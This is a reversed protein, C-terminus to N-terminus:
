KFFLQPFATQPQKKLIRIVFTSKLFAIGYGFFQIYLAVLTYLSILLSKNVILSELFVFVTYILLISIFITNGFLLAIFSGLTYFVFLTPLWFTVKAAGPHWLSIIPRVMGFKKVQTYFKSWSIRRKHYVFVKSFFATKFGAKMIRHSLDPDEGPHIKGFGGTALFAEKSIGMNFSRPEFKQLSQKRGRIGGTTLFSTMVHNIAKQLSSFSKHAADSGGFCEVYNNQLASDVEKLYQPPLICDSDLILFYDGKAKEMGFNRSDGPGSNPKYYYSINLTESFSKVIGESKITSGDEVIVIEYPKDYDLQTLSQLLEEVEDPRNYVPIVFTYNRPIM